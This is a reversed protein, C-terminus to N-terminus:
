SKENLSIKGPTAQKKIMSLPTTNETKSM